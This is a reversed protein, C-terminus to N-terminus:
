IPHVTCITIRSTYMEKPHLWMETGHQTKTYKNPITSEFRQSFSKWFFFITRIHETKNSKISKMNAMSTM